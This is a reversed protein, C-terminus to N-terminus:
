WSLFTKPWKGSSTESHALKVGAKSLMSKEPDAHVNDELAVHIMRTIGDYPKPNSYLQDPIGQGDSLAISLERSTLAQQGPTNRQVGRGSTTHCVINEMRPLENKPAQHCTDGMLQSARVRQWSNLAHHANNTVQAAAEIDESPLRGGEHSQTYRNCTANMIQACSHTM